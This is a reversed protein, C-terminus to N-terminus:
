RVWEQRVTRLSIRCRRTTVPFGTSSTRATVCTLWHILRQAGQVTRPRNQENPDENARLKRSPPAQPAAMDGPKSITEFGYAWLPESAFDVSTGPMAPPPEVSAVTERAQWRTDYYRQAVAGLAFCACAVVFTSIFRKM